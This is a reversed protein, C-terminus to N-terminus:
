IWGTAKCPPGASYSRCTMGCLVSVKSICLGTQKRLGDQWSFPSSSEDGLIQGQRTRQVERRVVTRPAIM